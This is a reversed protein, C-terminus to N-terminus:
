QQFGRDRSRPSSIETGDVESVGNPRADTELRKSRPARKVAWNIQCFGLLCATRGHTHNVEPSCIIIM